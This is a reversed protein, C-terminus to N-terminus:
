AYVKTYIPAYPAYVEAACMWCIPLMVTEGRVQFEMERKSFDRCRTREKCRPCRPGIRVALRTEM